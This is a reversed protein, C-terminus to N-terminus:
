RGARVRGLGGPGMILVDACLKCLGFAVDEVGGCVDCRPLVRWIGPWREEVLEEYRSDDSM